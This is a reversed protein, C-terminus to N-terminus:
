EGQIQEGQNYELNNKNLIDLRKTLSALENKHNEIATWFSNNYISQTSKIYDENLLIDLIDKTTNIMEELEEKTNM